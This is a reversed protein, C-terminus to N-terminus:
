SWRQPWDTRIPKGTVASWKGGDLASIFFVQLYIGGLVGYAMVAYVFANAQWFFKSNISAFVHM